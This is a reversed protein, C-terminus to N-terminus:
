QSNRNNILDERDQQEPTLTPDKKPANKVRDIAKELGIRQILEWPIKKNEDYELNTSGFPNLWYTMFVSAKDRYVPIFEMELRGYISGGRSKLYFKKKAERKYDADEPNMDLKWISDYGELPAKHM